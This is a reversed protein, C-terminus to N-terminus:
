SPTGSKSAFTLMERYHEEHQIAQNLLQGLMEYILLQKLFSCSLM